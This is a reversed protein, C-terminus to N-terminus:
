KGTATKLINRFIVQRLKKEGLSFALIAASIEQRRAPSSIEQHCATRAVATVQPLSGSTTRSQRSKRSCSVRGLVIVGEGQRRLVM